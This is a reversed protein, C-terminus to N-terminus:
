KEDDAVTKKTAVLEEEASAKSSELSSKETTAESMRKQMTSIETDMSQKLMEYRETLYRRVDLRMQLSSPIDSSLQLCEDTYYLVHVHICYTAFM